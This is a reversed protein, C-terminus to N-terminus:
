FSIEIGVIVEAKWTFNLTTYNNNIESPNIYLDINSSNLNQVSVNLKDLNFIIVKMEGTPSISKIFSKQIPFTFNQQVIM